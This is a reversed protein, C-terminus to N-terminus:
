SRRGRGPGAASLRRRQQGRLFAVVEADSYEPTGDIHSGVFGALVAAGGVVYPRRFLHKGAVLVAFAPHYGIRYMCRGFRLKGKLRGGVSGTPRLHTVTPEPFSRTTWGRMQAKLEDIADWGLTEELGGIDSFCERRYIKTAGRVHSDPVREIRLRGGRWECCHGGAIGLGPLQRFRAFLLEFYDERFVVDGDLKVVYDVRSIDIERLGRNFARIVASEYDRRPRPELQVLRMRPYSGALGKVIAATDDTSGDDVVVWLAPQMTQAAVSAATQEIYGAEDRVPTIIVYKPSHMESM